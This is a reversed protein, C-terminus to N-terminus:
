YKILFNITLSPQINQDTGSIGANDTTGAGSLFGNTGNYSPGGSTGNVAHRHNQNEIGTANASNTNFKELVVQFGDGVRFGFVNVNDVPNATVHFIEGYNLYHNHNADVYNSWIDVSHTHNALFHEHAGQYHTHAVVVATTSGVKEGVGLTFKGSTVPDSTGGNYGVPTRGQFDPVNFTTTGNGAGFRNGVVAYLAAYTSRSVEQGRCM